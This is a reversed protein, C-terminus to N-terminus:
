EMFAENLYINTGSDLYNLDHSLLAQTELEALSAYAIYLYRRYEKTHHRSYGEAINSPISIASRRM